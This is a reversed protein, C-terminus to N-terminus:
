GIPRATTPSNVAWLPRRVHLAINRWRCNGDTFGGVLASLSARRRLFRFLLFELIRVQILFKDVIKCMHFQIGFANVVFMIPVEVLLVFHLKRILLVRQGRTVLFGQHHLFFGTLIVDVIWMRASISHRRHGWLRLKNLVPRFTWSINIIRPNTLRLEQDVIFVGEVFIILICM